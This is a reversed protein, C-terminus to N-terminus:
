GGTTHLYADALTHLRAQDFSRGHGPHVVSVALETLREMSRRYAPIDSDPLDDILSGDYVVDGSFLIGTHEELLAISGPSHGPLHLVTLTRGGLDVRDGDDLPHTVAVAEVRYKRPDYEPYPLTELLLDPAAAGASDIGLKEYLEEGYLSAPVGEALIAVESRHAARERFEHAGGVHDLHSHTLLVLPDRDFMGPIEEHLAVVGLGADVVLDRDSGRLWWLNAQLLEDVHPERIRVLETGSDIQEYWDTM